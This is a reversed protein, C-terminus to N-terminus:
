PTAFLRVRSLWQVSSIPEFHRRAKATNFVDIEAAAEFHGEGGIKVAALERSTGPIRARAEGGQRAPQLKGLAPTHPDRGARQTTSVQTPQGEERHRPAQPAQRPKQPGEEADRPKHASTEAGRAQGRRGADLTPKKPSERDVRQTTLNKHVQKREGGAREQPAQTNWVEKLQAALTTHAAWTQIGGKDQCGPGARRVM